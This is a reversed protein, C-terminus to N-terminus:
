LHLVGDAILAECKYEYYHTDFIMVFSSVRGMRSYNMVKNSSLDHLLSLSSGDKWLSMM